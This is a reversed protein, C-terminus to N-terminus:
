VDGLRHTNCKVPTKTSQRFYNKIDHKSMFKCCPEGKLLTGSIFFIM